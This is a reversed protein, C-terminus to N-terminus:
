TVSLGCAKYHTWETEKFSIIISYFYYKKLLNL